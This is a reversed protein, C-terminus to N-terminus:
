AALVLRVAIVGAPTRVRAPREAPGARGRLWGLLDLPRDDADLLPLNQWGIRVVVAGGQAV